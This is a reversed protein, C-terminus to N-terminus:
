AVADRHLQAMAGLLSDGDVPKTVFLDAGAAMGAARHEPLANATVMIIPTRRMQRARERERIRRIATLGDMVPMQMDMLIVDFPQAEFAECAAQGDHTSVVEAGISDLLMEVVMRNVPHDESVLVRLPPGEPAAAPVAADQVAPPTPATPLPVVLTFVAGSGPESDGDLSGGMKAALGRSIALGLGTGGFRRTIGGDAQQFRQFMRAKAAPDFGIGTDRVDFRWMGDQPRVVLDVHGQDTFKIANSILNTLIQKLRTADGLVEAHAAPALVLRLELGRSQARATMLSTVSQVAAALDFPEVELAMGDPDIRALDLIDTLLRELMVGSSQITNAMERQQPSLHSKALANSLANVGNLPTRIEHSMNALFEGQARHVEMLDKAAQHTRQIMLAGLAIFAIAAAAIIWFSRRFLDYSPRQPTWVLMVPPDGRTPHFATRAQSPAIKSADTVIATGSLGYSAQITAINADTIFGGAVVISARPGRPAAAGADPEVLSAMWMYARGDRPEIRTIIVPPADAKAKPAPGRKRELDRIEAILHEAERRRQAWEARPAPEADRSAWVPRDAADVVLYDWTGITPKLYVPLNERAWTPDPRNDLNVVAADWVTQAALANEFGRIQGNIASDVLQQEHERVRADVQRAALILSVALLVIAVMALITLPGILKLESRVRM